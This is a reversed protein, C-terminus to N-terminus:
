GMPVIAAVSVPESVKAEVPVTVGGTDPEIAAVSVPASVNAAVPVLPATVATSWIKSGM